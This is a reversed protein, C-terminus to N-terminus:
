SVLFLRNDTAAGVNEVHGNEVGSGARQGDVAPRTNHRTGSGVM